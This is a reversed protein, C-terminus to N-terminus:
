FYYVTLIHLSLLLPLPWTVLVHAWSWFKRVQRTYRAAVHHSLAISIGALVGCAIISLFDVMLIRNLNSGLHFGTHMILLGICAVGVISHLLRWYAFGGLWKWQLRKRLSMVLGLLSLGLLTFGSVQKWFSDNWVKEFAPQTQVSSAVELGPIFVLACALVAAVVSSILLTKWGVEKEKETEEGTYAETLQELLPKCSGCTTAATTEAQLQSISTYGAELASELTGKTINSCQCVVVSAPWNIIEDNNGSGWLSGTLRFRWLQLASFARQNQFAEQVRRAEPWDGLGVTGLLKGKLVVLKRYIGTKKDYFSLERQLPHSGLDAVQGMSCVNEGVVKLRSVELSGLYQASEEHITAAAVAAQEMGPNVLGYTKGRHECCEGIAYIDSDSTQLQDNVLIGHAWKLKADQALQINPTIGACFLVTDCPIIEGSRTVVSEVRGKGTIKRVGSETIVRIGLAEVKEQLLTAAKDDLQRNMLRTAQQVLTVRTSHRCMARAAELGLLGGGVVVLHRARSIRASLAQAERIDRFTFVGDQKVGEINPIHPRSGTAIILRDYEYSQDLHDFVQKKRTDIKTIYAVQYQFGPHEQENPLPTAIDGVSADGALLSSLMVRNYPAYPEDGFLTLKAFPERKLMEQAFRVGVPGSGVVLIKLQRGSNVFAKSAFAGSVNEADPIFHEVGRSERKGDSQEGSARREGPILPSTEDIAATDINQNVATNQETASM